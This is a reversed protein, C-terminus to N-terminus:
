FIDSKWCQWKTLELWCGPKKTLPVDSTFVWPISSVDFEIIASICGLLVIDGPFLGLRTMKTESIPLNSWIQHDSNQGKKHYM